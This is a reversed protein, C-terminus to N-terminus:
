TIGRVFNQVAKVGPSTTRYSFVCLLIITQIVVVSPWLLVMAVVAGEMDYVSTGNNDKVVHKDILYSGKAVLVGMPLHLVGAVWLWNEILPERFEFGLYGAAVLGFGIIFAKM